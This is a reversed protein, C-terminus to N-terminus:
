YGRLGAEIGAKFGKEYTLRESRSWTHSVWGEYTKGNITVKFSSM